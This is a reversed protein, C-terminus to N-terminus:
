NWQMLTASGVANWVIGDTSAMLAELKRFEESILGSREATRCIADAAGL